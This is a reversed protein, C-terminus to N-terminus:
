VGNLHKCNKKACGKENLNNLDLYCKHLRCYGKAICMNARRGYLFLETNKYPKVGKRITERCKM